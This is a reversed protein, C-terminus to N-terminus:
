IRCRTPQGAAGDTDIADNDGEWSTFEGLYGPADAADDPATYTARTVYCLTLDALCRAPLVLGTVCDHSNFDCDARTIEDPTDCFHTDPNCPPLLNGTVCNHTAMVCASKLMGTSDSNSDCFHTDPNCPPLLNGTVCNHTAPVCASKLAGTSDSNSDCFRTDPNCAVPTEGGGSSGGCATLVALVSAYFLLKLARHSPKWM